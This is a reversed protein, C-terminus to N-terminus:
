QEMNNALDLNLFSSFAANVVERECVSEKEVGLDMLTTEIKLLEM